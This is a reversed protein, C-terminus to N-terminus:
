PKKSSAPSVPIKIHNLSDITQRQNNISDRLEKIKDRSGSEGIDKGREYYFTSGGIILAIASGIVLSWFGGSKIKWLLQKKSLRRDMDTFTENYGELEENLGTNMKSYEDVMDHLQKISEQAEENLAILHEKEEDKAAQTQQEKYKRQAEFGEVSHNWADIKAEITGILKAKASDFASKAQASVASTFRLQKIEIVLMPDSPFMKRFADIVNLKLKEIEQEQGFTLANARQLLELLYNENMILILLIVHFGLIGGSLTM